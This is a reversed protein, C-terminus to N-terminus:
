INIECIYYFKTYYVLILPFIVNKAAHHALYTKLSKRAFHVVM